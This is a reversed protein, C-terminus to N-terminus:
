KEACRVPSSLVIDDDRVSFFSSIEYPGARTGIPYDSDVNRLILRGSRERSQKPDYPVTFEIKRISQDGDEWVITDEGVPIVKGGLEVESRLVVRGLSSYLRSAYMQAAVGESVTQGHAFQIEGGWGDITAFDSIVVQSWYTDLRASPSPNSLMLFFDKYERSEKPDPKLEIEVFKTNSDGAAWELTGAVGQFHLGDKGVVGELSHYDVSAAQETTGNRDVPIRAIKMKSDFYFVSGGLSIFGGSTPYEGSSKLSTGVLQEVEDSYGDNDDDLDCADGLADADNDLQEQNPLFPCNDADDKIGDNDDDLDESDGLGDLDADLYEDPDEPFTDKNDGIGDGDSDKVESSDEPFADNVDPIGDNDTDILSPDIPELAVWLSGTHLVTEGSGENTTWDSALIFISGSTAVTATYEMVASGYWVGDENLDSVKLTDLLRGHVDLIRYIAGDNIKLEVKLQGPDSYDVRYQIQERPEFVFEALPESYPHPGRSSGAAYVGDNDEVLFRPSLSQFVCNTTLRTLSISPSYSGNNSIYGVFQGAKIIKPLVDESVYTGNEGSNISRNLPGFVNVVSEPGSASGFRGEPNLISEDAEPSGLFGYYQSSAEIWGGDVEACALEDLDDAFISANLTLLFTSILCFRLMLINGLKKLAFTV